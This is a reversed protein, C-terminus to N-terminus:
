GGVDFVPVDFKFVRFVTESCRFGVFYQNEVADLFEEATMFERDELLIAIDRVTWGERVTIREDPTIVVPRSRLVVNVETHNMNQNLLYTGERYVRSSGKLLLELRYLWASEIIGLEELQRAVDAVPTDETLVFEIQYSERVATLRESFELGTEYGGFAARYIVIGLVIFILANFCIGLFYLMSNVLWHMKM